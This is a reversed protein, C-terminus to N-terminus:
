VAKPTQYKTQNKSGARKKEIEKTKKHKKKKCCCFKTWFCVSSDKIIHVYLTM